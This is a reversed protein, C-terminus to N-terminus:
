CRLICVRLRPSATVRLPVRLHDDNKEADGHRGTGADKM